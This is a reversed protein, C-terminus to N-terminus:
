RSLPHRHPRGGRCRDRGGAKRAFIARDGALYRKWDDDGPRANEDLASLDVAIDALAMELAGLAAASGPKLIRHESEHSEVAALLEKM